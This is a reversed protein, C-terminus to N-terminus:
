LEVSSNIVIKEMAKKEISAKIREVHREIARADRSFFKSLLDAVKDPDLRAAYTDSIEFARITNTLNRAPFVNSVKGAIEVDNGYIAVLPIPQVPLNCERFLIRASNKAQLLANRMTGKAGSRTVTDWVEADLHVQITGSKYKTEVLYIHKTTILVHDIEVSHEDPTEENFFFVLGHLARTKGFKSRNADILKKVALEAKIGANKRQIEPDNFYEEMWLTIVFFLGCFFIVPIWYLFPAMLTLPFQGDQLLGESSALEITIISFAGTFIILALWRLPRAFWRVSDWYSSVWILKLHKTVPKKIWSYLGKIVWFWALLISAITSGLFYSAKPGAVFSVAIIFAIVGFFQILSNEM